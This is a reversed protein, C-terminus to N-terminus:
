LTSWYPNNGKDYTEVLALRAFREGVDKKNSPHIDKEEGIDLTIVM